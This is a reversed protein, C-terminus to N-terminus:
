GAMVIPPSANLDGAPIKRVKEKASTYYLSLIRWAM